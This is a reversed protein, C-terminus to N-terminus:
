QNTLFHDNSGTLVNKLLYSIGAIGAAIGASKLLAMFDIACSGEVCANYQQLGDYIVGLFSSFVAVLLAKQWDKLNLNFLKSKM